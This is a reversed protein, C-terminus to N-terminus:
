TKQGSFKVVYTMIGLEHVARAQISYYRISGRDLNGVHQNSNGRHGEAKNNMKRRWYVHYEM